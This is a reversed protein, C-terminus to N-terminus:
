TRQLMATAHLSLVIREMNAHLYGTSTFLLVISCVTLLAAAIHDLLIDRPLPESQVFTVTSPVASVRGCGGSCRRSCNCQHLDRVRVAGCVLAM